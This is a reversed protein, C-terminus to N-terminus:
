RFLATLYFLRLNGSERAADLLRMYEERTLERERDRYIQRQTKIQRIRLDTWSLFAFFSNVASIMVNVTSATLTASIQAKWALLQEKTVTKGFPLFAYLAMIASIYKQVTGESREQMHLYTEFARMQEDTITYTM